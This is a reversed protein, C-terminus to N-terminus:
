EPWRPLDLAESLGAAPDTCVPATAAFLIAAAAPARRALVASLAKCTGAKNGM